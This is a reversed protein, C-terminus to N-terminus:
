PVGGSGACRRKLSGPMPLRSTSGTLCWDAPPPSVFDWLKVRVPRRQGAGDAQLQEIVGWDKIMRALSGTLFAIRPQVLLHGGQDLVEQAM